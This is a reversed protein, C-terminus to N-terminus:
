PLEGTVVTTPPRCLSQNQSAILVDPYRSFTTRTLPNLTSGRLSTDLFGAIVNRLAAVANEVGMAGPPALGPVDKFLWVADTPTLHQAGRLNVALRPGSLNSWLQCEQSTWHQRGAALILLPKATGGVDEDSIPADLLVAAHVRPDRQLSALAVEAGLSHGMVAIRSLDLKGAFWAGPVRLLKMQDLVFKLDALRVSRALRLSQEDSRLSDTELYSGFLSKAIRGDPFEVATSEYTHAISIVVYGRSALEEFLYGGDTFTGTYGHSFILIPHSGEASPANLCSHTVVKPLSSGSIESLYAWVKPTFYDAIRCNANSAIPYWFRVMLERKTGNRLLPDERLPDILRMCHTGVASAGTPAPTAVPQGAGAAVLVAVMCDLLLSVRIMKRLDPM